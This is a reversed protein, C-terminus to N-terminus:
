PYISWQFLAGVLFIVIIIFFIKLGLGLGERTEAKLKVPKNTDQLEGSLIQSDLRSSSLYAIVVFIAAFGFFFLFLIKSAGPETYNYESQLWERWFMIFGPIDYRWGFLLHPLMYLSFGLFSLGLVLSFIGVIFLKHNKQYRDAEM